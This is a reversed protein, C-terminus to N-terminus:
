LPPHRVWDLIEPADLNTHTHAHAHTHTHAHAHMIWNFEISHVEKFESPDLENVCMCTTKTKNATIFSTIVGPSRSAVIYWSWWRAALRGALASLMCLSRYESYALFFAQFNTSLKLVPFLPRGAHLTSLAFMPMVLWFNMKTKIVYTVLFNSSFYVCLRKEFLLNIIVYEFNSHM